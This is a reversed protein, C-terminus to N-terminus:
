FQTTYEHEGLLKWCHEFGRTEEHNVTLKRQDGRATVDSLALSHPLFEAFPLLCLM